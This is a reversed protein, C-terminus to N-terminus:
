DEGRKSITSVAETLAGVQERIQEILEGTSTGNRPKVQKSIEVLMATTQESSELARHALQMATDAIAMASSASESATRTLEFLSPSGPSDRSPAEGTVIRLPRAIHRTAWRLGAVVVGGAGITALTASGFIETLTKASALLM